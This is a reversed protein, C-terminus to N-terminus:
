GPWFSLKGQLPEIPKETWCKEFHELWEKRRAQPLTIVVVAFKNNDKLAREASKAFDIDRTLLCTFGADVAAAVLNGNTLERWGRAITNDASVGKALLVRGLSVDVNVDLLWM